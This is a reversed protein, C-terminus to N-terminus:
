DNWEELRIIDRMEEAQRHYWGNDNIQLDVFVDKSILNEREVLYDYHPHVKMIKMEGLKTHGIRHCDRCLAIGNMWDWRTLLKRRRVIHHCELECDGPQGCFACRHGAKVLVARRWLQHMRSESLRKKM